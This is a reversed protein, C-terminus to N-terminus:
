SIWWAPLGSDSMRANFVVTTGNVNYSYEYQSFESRSREFGADKIVQELEKVRDSFKENTPYHGTNSPKYGVQQLMDSFSQSGEDLECKESDIIDNRISEQLNMKNEM